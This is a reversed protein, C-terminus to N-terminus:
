ELFNNSKVRKIVAARLDPSLALHQKEAAKHGLCLLITRLILLFCFIIQLESLDLKTENRETLRDGGQSSGTSDCMCIPPPMEARVVSSFLLPQEPSIAASSSQAFKTKETPCLSPHSKTFVATLPPRGCGRTRTSLLPLPQGLPFNFCAAKERWWPSLVTHPFPAFTLALPAWKLCFYCM